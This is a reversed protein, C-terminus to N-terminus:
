VLRNNILWEEWNDETLSEYKTSNEIKYRSLIKKLDEYTKAYEYISVAGPRMSFPDRNVVHRSILKGTTRDIYFNYGSSEYRETDMEEGYSFLCILDSFNKYLKEM